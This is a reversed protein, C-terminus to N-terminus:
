DFFIQFKQFVKFFSTLMGAFSEIFRDFIKLFIDLTKLSIEFFNRFNLLVILLCRSSLRHSVRRNLNRRIPQRAHELGSGLGGPRQGSGAFQETEGSHRGIHGFDRLFEYEFGGLQFWKHQQKLKFTM